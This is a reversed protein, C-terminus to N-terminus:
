EVAAIEGRTIFERLSAAHVRIDFSSVAENRANTRMERRNDPTMAMADRIAAQLTPVTADGCVLATEGNRLHRYLDGTLTGIVPTGVALSEVVKTPFGAESVRNRDRLLLSFDATAVLDRATDGTTVGLTEICPPLASLGRRRMAPSKLITTEDVGAIRLLLKEGLPDLSMVAELQVDFLDKHGPTGAYALLLRKGDSGPGALVAETDLTPPIRVVDCGKARYHDALYSSIAITHGTAPSLWRMALQINWYYPSIWADIPRRPQYWEVADFTLSVGHRSCWHHLRLLYPTYGGYLIVSTPRPRLADLWRLSRRGITLYKLQRFSRPLHDATRESLRTVPVGEVMNRAIGGAMGGSGVEVDIGALQLTKAIGLIRRAAAGGEPVPVPSLYVVRSM